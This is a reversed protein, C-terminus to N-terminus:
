SEVSGTEGSGPDRSRRLATMRDGSVRLRSPGGARGGRCVCSRQRAGRAGPCGQTDGAREATGQKCRVRGAIEGWVRGPFAASASAGPPTAKRTGSGGERAPGQPVRTGEPRRGGKGRRRKRRESGKAGTRPRRIRKESKSSWGRARRELRGGDKHRTLLGSVRQGVQPMERPRSLRSPRGGMKAM